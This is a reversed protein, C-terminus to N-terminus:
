DLENLAKNVPVLFVLCDAIYVYVLSKIRESRPLNASSDPWTELYLLGKGADRGTSRQAEGRVRSGKEISIAVTVRGGM